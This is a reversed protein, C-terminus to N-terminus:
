AMGRAIFDQTQEQLYFQLEGSLEEDANKEASSRASVCRCTTKLTAGAQKIWGHQELRYLAPYLACQNVQLV